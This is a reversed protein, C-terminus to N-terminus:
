ELAYAIRGKSRLPEMGILSRDRELKRKSPDNFLGHETAVIDVVLKEGPADHRAVDMGDNARMVSLFEGVDDTRPLAATCANDIARELTFTGHPDWVEVISDNSALLGQGAPDAVHQFVRNLDSLM